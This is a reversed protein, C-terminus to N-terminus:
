GCCTTNMASSGQQLLSVALGSVVLAAPAVLGALAAARAGFTVRPADGAPEPGRDDTDTVPLDTVPLSTDDIM